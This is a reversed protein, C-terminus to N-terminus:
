NISARTPITGLRARRADYTASHVIDMVSTFGPKGADNRCPTGVGTAAHNIDLFDSQGDNEHIVVVSMKPDLGELSKALDAVTM